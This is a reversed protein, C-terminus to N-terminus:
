TDTLGLRDLIWALAFALERWADYRGSRGGHGAELETKLLVEADGTKM